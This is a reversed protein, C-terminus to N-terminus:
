FPAEHSGVLPFHSQVEPQVPECSILITYMCIVILNGVFTFLKVKINSKCTKVTVNGTWRTVIALVTPLLTVASLSSLTMMHVPLTLTSGPGPPDVALQVTGRPPVPDVTVGATVTVGVVASPTVWDSSYALTSMAPPAM